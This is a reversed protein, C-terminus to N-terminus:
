DQLLITTVITGPGDFRRPGNDWATIDDNLKHRRKDKDHQASGVGRVGAWGGIWTSYTYQTKQKLERTPEAVLEILASLIKDEVQAGTVFDPFWHATHMAASFVKSIDDSIATM